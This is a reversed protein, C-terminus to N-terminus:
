AQHHDVWRGRPGWIMAYQLQNLKAEVKSLFKEELDVSKTENGAADSQVFTRSPPRSGHHGSQADGLALAEPGRRPRPKPRSPGDQREAADVPRAAADKSTTALPDARAAPTEALPAARDIASQLPRTHVSDHTVRRAIESRRAQCFDLQAAPELSIDCCSASVAASEVVILIQARPARLM